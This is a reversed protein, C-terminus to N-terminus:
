GTAAIKPAARKMVLTPADAYVTDYWPAFGCKEAVRISGRNAPAVICFMERYDLKFDTWALAARVAETAYGKGHFPSGLTWGVEPMDDRRPAMERCVEFAGVMGVYAGSAKEEVAFLGYGRLAWHGFGRLFRGWCDERTASRGHFHRGVVPDQWMALVAEFDAERHGRLILRETALTPIDLM